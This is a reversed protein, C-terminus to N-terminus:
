YFFVIIIFFIKLFLLNNPNFGLDKFIMSTMSIVIFLRLKYNSINTHLSLTLIELFLFIMSVIIRFMTSTSISVKNNYFFLNSLFFDSKIKKHKKLKIIKYNQLQDKVEHLIM